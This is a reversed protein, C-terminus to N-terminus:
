EKRLKLLSIKTLWKRKSTKKKDEKFKLLEDDKHHIVVEKNGLTFTIHSKTEKLKELKKILKKIEKESMIVELLNEENEITRM